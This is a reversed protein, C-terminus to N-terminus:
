VATALNQEGTKVLTLSHTSRIRFLYYGQGGKRKAPSLGCENKLIKGFVSWGCAPYGERKCFAQYHPLAKGPPYLEGKDQPTPLVERLWAEVGPVFLREKPSLETPAVDARKPAKPPLVPPHSPPSPSQPLPTSESLPPSERWNLGFIGIFLLDIAAILFKPGAAAMVEGIIAMSSEKNKLPNIPLGAFADKAQTLYDPPPTGIERLKNRAKEIEVELNDVRKTLGYDRSVQELHTQAVRVDQTLDNCTKTIYKCAADRAKNASDVGEQAAEVDKEGTPTYKGKLDKQEKTWEQIRASWESSANLKGDRDYTINSRTLTISEAGNGISVYLLGLLLGWAIFSWVMPQKSLVLPIAAALMVFALQVLAIDEAGHVWYPKVNLIVSPTLGILVALACVPWYIWQRWM